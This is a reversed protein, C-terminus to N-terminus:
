YWADIRVQPAGSASRVAIDPIAPEDYSVGITQGPEVVINTTNKSKEPVRIWVDTVGKNFASFGWAVEGFGVRQWATSTTVDESYTIGQPKVHRAFWEAVPDAQRGKAAGRAEEAAPAGPPAQGGTPFRGPSRDPSFPKQM